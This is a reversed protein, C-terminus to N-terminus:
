GSSLIPDTTPQISGDGPELTVAVADAGEPSLDTELISFGERVDFTGASEPEGDRILWLQYIHEEPANPLGAVAFVGGEPTPVIRGAAGSGEVEIGGGHLLAALVEDHQSLDSRADLLGATLVAFLAVALAAAALVPGRSWRRRRRGEPVPARRDERVAALVREEFGAPLEVPDVALALAGTADVYGDAEAMCEECSLIHARIVRIEEPPVAGLAYAAILEKLEDHSRETV